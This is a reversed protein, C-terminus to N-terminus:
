VVLDVLELPHPSTRVTYEFDKGIGVVDQLVQFVVNLTVDEVSCIKPRIAGFDIAFIQLRILEKNVKDESATADPIVPFVL